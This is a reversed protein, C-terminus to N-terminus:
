LLSQKKEPCLPLPGKVVRTSFSITSNYFIQYSWCVTHSDAPQGCQSLGAGSFSPCHLRRRPRVASLGSCSTKHPSVCAAFHFSPCFSHFFVAPNAVRCPIAGSIFLHDTDPVKLCFGSLAKGATLQSAIDMQVHALFGAAYAGAHGQSFRIVDGGGMPSVPMAQCLAGPGIQRHRLQEALLGAVALTPAAGHMDHIHVQANQTGVANYASADRQCCATRQGGFHFAVARHCHSEKAVTGGVLAREVLGNIHSGGPLQRHHIQQLVVAVADGRLNVTDGIGLRQRDPGHGVADRAHRHVAGIHLSNIM